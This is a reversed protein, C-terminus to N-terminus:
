ARKRGTVRRHMRAAPAHAPGATRYGTRTSSCSRAPTHVRGTPAGFGVTPARFRVTHVPTPGARRSTRGFSLGVQAKPEISIPHGTRQRTMDANVLIAIALLLSVVAFAVAAPWFIAASIFAAVGAVSAGIILGLQREKYAAYDRNTTHVARFM